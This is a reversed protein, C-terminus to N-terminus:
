YEDYPMLTGVPEGEFPRDQQVVTSGWFGNDIDRQFDYVSYGQQVLRDYDQHIFPFFVPPLWDKSDLAEVVETNPTEGHGFQSLYTYRIGEKVPAVGHTGLYNAPFFVIDGPKPKININSYPFYFEGGDFDDNFYVIANVTQGMAVGRGTFYRQGDKTRYNTDNDNHLGLSAGPLYKLCHGRNKWWVTNLIMPFIDIYRILGRYLAKECEVFFDKIDDPTHWEVPGDNQDGGLRMPMALLSEYPFERGEFDVARKTGDEKEELTFGCMPVSSYKDIYPLIKEQPVSVASHFQIVGGGHNTFKTESILKLQSEDLKPIEHHTNTSVPM